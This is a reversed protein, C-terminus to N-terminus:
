LEEFIERMDKSHIRAARTLSTDFSLSPLGQEKREKNILHKTSDLLPVHISVIDAEKLVAECLELVSMEKKIFMEHAQKITLKKIDM